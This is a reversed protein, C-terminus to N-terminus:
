RAGGPEPPADAGDPHAALARDILESAAGLHPEPALAEEVGREGLRELNARMRGPDLELNELLERSWATASGVLGLLETL